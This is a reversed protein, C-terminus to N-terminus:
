QGASKQRYAWQMAESAVLLAPSHAGTYLYSDVDLDVFDDRNLLANAGPINMQILGKLEGLM